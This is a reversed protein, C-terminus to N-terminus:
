ENVQSPEAGSEAPAEASNPLASSGPQYDLLDPLKSFWDLVAKEYLKGFELTAARFPDDYQEAEYKELQGQHLERHTRLIGALRGPALHAGFLTTLLLPYRINEPGPEREIWEAFATRGAATLQYPKADRAGPEGAEVLGATQMASLERYVQSRTISWFSGIAADAVTVLTWGRMPGEHLFGLLSAATPNLPRAVKRRSM